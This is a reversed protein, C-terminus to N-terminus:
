PNGYKHIRRVEHQENNILLRVGNRKAILSGFKIADYQTGLTVFPIRNMTYQLSWGDTTKTVLIDSGLKRM